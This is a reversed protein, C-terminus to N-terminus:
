KLTKLDELIETHHEKVKVKPYVKVIKGDPNVIFTSRVIGMYEKGYMSKKQWVGFQECVDSNEDSLLNFHLNYKDAFKKHREVSDKSIGLIVADISNFDPLVEQFNCAETTCGPTLDKPYFYVIVWRGIYDSINHIKGNQDPLSFQPVNSGSKLM